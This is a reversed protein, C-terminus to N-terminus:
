NNKFNKRIQQTKTITKNYKQQVKLAVILKCFWDSNWVLRFLRKIYRKEKGRHTAARVRAVLSRPRGGWLGRLKKQTYWPWLGWSVKISAYFNLQPNMARGWWSCLLSADAERYAFPPSLNRSHKARLLRIPVCVVTTTSLRERM